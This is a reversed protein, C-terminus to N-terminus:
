GGSVTRRPFSRSLCGGVNVTVAQAGGATELSHPARQMGACGGLVPVRARTKILPWTPVQSSANPLQRNGATLSHRCGHPAAPRRNPLHGGADLILRTDSNSATGAGAGPWRMARRDPGAAVSM